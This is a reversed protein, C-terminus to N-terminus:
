ALPARLRVRRTRQSRASPAAYRDAPPRHLPLETLYVGVVPVNDTINAGVTAGWHSLEDYVLSYGTFGVVLTLLLLCMRVLWNLERPKSYAGTFFTRMQHLAVAAVRRTAACKHLGRLFWGFSAEETIARVSVYAPQPSPKYSFALLIVTVLQVLLLYAPTDGLSWWWKKLHNPAPEDTLGRLQEPGM